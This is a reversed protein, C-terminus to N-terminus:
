TMISCLKRPYASSECSAEANPPLMGAVYPLLPGNPEFVDVM